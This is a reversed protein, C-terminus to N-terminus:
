ILQIQEAEGLKKILLEKFEEGRAPWTFQAGANKAKEGISKREDASTMRKM